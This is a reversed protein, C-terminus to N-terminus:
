RGAWLPFLRSKCPLNLSPSPGLWENQWSSARGSHPIAARLLAKPMPWPLPRFKPLGRGGRGAGFAPDEVLLIEWLEVQTQANEM